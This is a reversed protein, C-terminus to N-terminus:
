IHGLTDSPYFTDRSQSTTWIAPSLEEIQLTEVWIWPELLGFSGFYQSLWENMGWRASHSGAEKGPLSIKRQLADILELQPPASGPPLTAQEASTLKSALHDLIQKIVVPDEVCAIIRVPGQYKACTEVNIHCVGKM